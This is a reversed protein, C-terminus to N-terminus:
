PRRIRGAVYKNLVSDKIYQTFNEFATDGLNGGPFQNGKYLLLYSTGDCCGSNKGDKRSNAATRSAQETFKEWGAIDMRFGFGSFPLVDETQDAFGIIAGRHQPMTKYIVGQAGDRRKRLHLVYATDFSPLCFFFVSNTDQLDENFPISFGELLAASESRMLTPMSDTVNHEQNNSTQQQCSLLFLVITGLFIAKM